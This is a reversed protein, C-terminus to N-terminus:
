KAEVIEGTETSHFVCGSKVSSLVEAAIRHGTKALFREIEARARDPDAFWEEHDLFSTLGCQTTVERPLKQSEAGVPTSTSGFANEGDAGMVRWKVMISYHQSKVPCTMHVDVSNIEVVADPAVDSSTASPARECGERPANLDAELAQKLQGSYALRFIREFDAEATPHSQGAAACEAGQVAGWVAGLPATVIIAPWAVPPLVLPAVAGAGAGALAGRAAGEAPGGPTEYFPPPHFVPAEFTEQVAIDCVEKRDELPLLAPKDCASLISTALLAAAIRRLTPEQM